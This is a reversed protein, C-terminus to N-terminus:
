PCGQGGSGESSWSAGPLSSVPVPVHLHVYSPAHKPEGSDRFSLEGLACSCSSRCARHTPLMGKTVFGSLDGAVFGSAHVLFV